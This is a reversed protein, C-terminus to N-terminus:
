LKIKIMSIHTGSADEMGVVTAERAAMNVHDTMVEGTKRVNEMMVVTAEKAVTNADGVIEMMDMTGMIGMIGMMGMM